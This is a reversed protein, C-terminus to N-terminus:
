FPTGLEVRLLEADQTFLTGFHRARSLVVLVVGLIADVRTSAAVRRKVLRRGLEVRAASPGGEKVSDWACNVSM